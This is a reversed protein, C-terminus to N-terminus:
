IDFLNIAKDTFHQSYLNFSVAKLSNAKLSATKRYTKTLYHAFRENETEKAGLQMFEGQVLDTVVQSLVLTVDNNRIRSIMMSAVALIFDGAMTVKKHNWKVNVSPKGRRFDSQDIVDDHVLSATHIMESIMAVERQSKM